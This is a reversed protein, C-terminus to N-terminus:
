GVIYGPEDEEEAGSWKRGEGTVYIGGM